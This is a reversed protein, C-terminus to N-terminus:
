HATSQAKAFPLRSGKQHDTRTLFSEYNVDGTLSLRGLFYHDKTPLADAQDAPGVM